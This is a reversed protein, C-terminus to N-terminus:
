RVEYQISEMYELAEISRSTRFCFQAQLRNPLLTMIAIQDAIESGPQGYGGSVYLQLTQATRDNAIKGGIMDFSSFKRQADAFLTSNRNAAVFHLWDLDANEFYHLKLEPALHLKFVNLYGTRTDDSLQGSRIERRVSLRVFSEAQEKSDTVYFGKGFDKGNRCLSLDVESIKAYSGHYLLMGDYLVTM